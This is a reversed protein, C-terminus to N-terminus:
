QTGLYHHIWYRERKMTFTIPTQPRIPYHPANDWRLIPHATFLQEVLTNM